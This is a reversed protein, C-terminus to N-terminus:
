KLLNERKVNGLHRRRKILVLNATSLIVVLSGYIFFGFVALKIMNNIQGTQLSLHDFLVLALQKLSEIDGAGEIASKASPPPYSFVGIKPLIVWYSWALGVSLIGFIILLTANIVILMKDIM